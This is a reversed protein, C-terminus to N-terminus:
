FGPSFSFQFHWGKRPRDLPRVFDFQVVAFGFVNARVAAGVSSVPRRDGGFFDPREGRDWAVGGDAFLALELPLPGYMNRSVGFPRFLPFRLELNGILMRTGILRDFTACPGTLEPCEEAEFSGLDYGRVLTPYGLFLPSLLENQSDAGYRGFHMVRAAVTYFQAPMFYRRYDALVNSFNLSGMMPSVELRYRQGVVPSTAGFYSTDYVLAASAQALNLAGPVPLETSDEALLQGTVADFVATDIQEDFSIRRLGAAFELRQARSFPYAVMGTFAQNIQRSILQEEVIVSDGDISALSTRIGGSLYPVQELSAGWNWRRSLNQYAVLAATDKLSFNRSFSSNLQVATAVNHNGLMDGFFLAVGGGGFTGFRDVGAAFTPQAVYELGLDPDYDRVRYQRPAPLGLRPSEILRAVDTSRRELPPLAAVVRPVEASALKELRYLRYTDNEYASVVVANDSTSVGLAPSSDTIGSVGTQLNTVPSAAASGLDLVWVNTAGNADSLFFIRSGDAAWHPDIAKGTDPGGLARVPGGSADMAALRYDGFDLTALNTTFRDTVFALTRGDPSWAPHLEAYVDKTLQHLQNKRLDYVFLDTVGGVIASFAIANGDPSWTPNFVEHVPDLRVERTADGSEVDIVRLVPRGATVAPVVFSRSDPSWAGASRIFQLTSV